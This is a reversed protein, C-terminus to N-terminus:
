WLPVPGGRYDTRRPRGAAIDWDHRAASPDLVTLPGPPYAGNEQAVRAWYGAAFGARWAQGTDEGGVLAQVIQLVQERTFLRHGPNRLAAALVAAKRDERSTPAVVATV